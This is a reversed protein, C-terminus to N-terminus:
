PRDSSWTVAHHLNHPREIEYTCFPKFSCCVENFRPQMRDIKSFDRFKSFIANECLIALNLSFLM